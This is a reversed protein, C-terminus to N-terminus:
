LTKQSDRRLEKNNIHSQWLTSNKGKMKRLNIRRKRKGEQLHYKTSQEYFIKGNMHDMEHLFIRCSLDSFLAYFFEGDEDYYTVNVSKPRKVKVYLGPYSLCGEEEIVLESSQEVIEPNFLILNQGEHVMSFIKYPLGIQNSSLGVGNYYEMNDFLLQKIQGPDITMQDFSFDLCSETLFSDHEDILPRIDKM